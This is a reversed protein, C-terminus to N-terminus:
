IRCINGCNGFCADLNAGADFRTAVCLELSCGIKCYDQYESASTPICKTLCHVYCPNNGTPVRHKMNLLICQNYCGGWCAYPSDGNVIYMENGVVILMMLISVFIRTISREM